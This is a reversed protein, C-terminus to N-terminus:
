TRGESDGDDSGIEEEEFEIGEDGKHLDAPHKGCDSGERDSDSIEEYEFQVLEETEEDSGSLEEQEMVIDEEEGSNMLDGNEKEKQKHLGLTDTSGLNNKLWAKSGAKRGGAHSSVSYNGKRKNPASALHEGQIDHLQVARRPEPRIVSDSFVFPWQSNKNSVLAHGKVLSSAPDVMVRGANLSGAQHDGEEQLFPHLEAAGRVSNETPSALVQRSGIISRGKLAPLFPRFRPVNQPLPLGPFTAHPSVSKNSIPSSLLGTEFTTQMLLPHMKAPAPKEVINTFSVSKGHFSSLQSSGALKASSQVAPPISSCLLGSPSAISGGKWSKSSCTPVPVLPANSATPFLHNFKAQSIVRVCRPLNLSPLGPALKITQLGKSLRFRKGTRRSAKFTATTDFAGSTSTSYLSCNRLSPLCQTESSPLNPMSTLSNQVAASAQRATTCRGLEVSHLECSAEPLPAPSGCQQSNWDTLFAEHLYAGTAEECAEDGSNLEGNADDDEGKLLAQKQRRMKEGIRHKRKAEDNASYSKQLGVAARWLRSLTTPDRYPVCHEWVKLWDSRFFKLGEEICSEEEETLPSTKLRRVAKISNEPARATSRNKQRIFIQHTTKSPLFHRQIQDWNTNYRMLGMALLEDEAESFLLRRALAAPPPKYPFLNPCFVAAFRSVAVSIESPVLVIGNLKTDEVLTGAMTKKRQCPQAPSVQIAPVPFLPQQAYDMGDSISQIRQQRIDEVGKAVDSLFDKVLALPAVDLLSHVKATTPTFSQQNCVEVHTRVCASENIINMQVNGNSSSGSEAEKELGCRTHSLAEMQPLQTTIYQNPRRPRFADMRSFPRSTSATSSHVNHPCCCVEPLFPRKWTLVQDRADALQLLLRHTDTAIQQRSPDFVTIAFVQVLLQVHEHMLRQLQGRQCPTFGCPELKGNHPVENLLKSKDNSADKCAISPLLPRLPIRASGLPREILTRKKLRRGLVAARRRRKRKSIEQKPLLEEYDSELAEELEIEFDYDDEEDDDEEEEEGQRNGDGNEVGSGEKWNGQVAAVFKRYEEEDDVNQFYDEEDSEQLFTELEDLSMDTLSYHARTRRCIADVVQEEEKPSECLTTEMGSDENRPLGSISSLAAFDGSTQELSDNGRAETNDEESSTSLGVSEDFCFMPLSSNADLVNCHKSCSEM